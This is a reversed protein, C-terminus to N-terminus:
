NPMWALLTPLDMLFRSVCVAPTPPLCPLRPDDERDIMVAKDLLCYVLAHLFENYLEDAYFFYPWRPALDRLFSRVEPIEHLARRDDDFGGIAFCVRGFMDHIRGARHIRAIDFFTLFHSADKRDIVSREFM